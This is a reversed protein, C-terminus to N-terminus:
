ELRWVTRGRERPVAQQEVPDTVRRGNVGDVGRQGALKRYRMGRRKSRRRRNKM